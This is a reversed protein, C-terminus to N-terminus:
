ASLRYLTFTLFAYRFMTCSRLAADLEAWQARMVSSPINTCDIRTLSLDSRSQATKFLAYSVLKPLDFDVMAGDKEFIGETM